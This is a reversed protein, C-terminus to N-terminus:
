PNKHSQSLKGSNSPLLLRILLCAVKNDASYLSGLDISEPRPKLQFNCRLYFTSFSPSLSHVLTDIKMGQGDGHIPVWPLQTSLKRPRKRPQYVPFAGTLWPHLRKFLPSCDPATCRDIHQGLKEFFSPLSVTSQM